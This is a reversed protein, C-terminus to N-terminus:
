ERIRHSTAPAPRDHWGHPALHERAWHEALSLITVPSTMLCKCEARRDGSPQHPVYVIDVAHVVAPSSIM